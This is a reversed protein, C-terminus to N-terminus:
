KKVVKPSLFNTDLVMKKLINRLNGDGSQLESVYPALLVKLEEDNMERGNIFAFARKVSCNEFPKSKAVLGAFHAVGEGANNGMYTGRDIPPSYKKRDYLYAPEGDIGKWKEFYLSMNELGMHVHCLACYPNKVIDDPATPDPVIADGVAFRLCTFAEYVRNAKARTGNTLIQFAPTTLVGAHVPGREVRYQKRDTISPSVFIRNARDAGEPFNDWFESGVKAMFYGYTGTMITSTSTLVESFNRDEAVTHAILYGPEMSMDYGVQDHFKNYRHSGRMDCHMMDPGCRALVASPVKYEKIGQRAYKAVATVGEPDWWPKVSRLDPSNCGQNTGGRALDYIQKWLSETGAVVPKEKDVFPKITTVAGAAMYWEIVPFDPCAENMALMIHMQPKIARFKILSTLQSGVTSSTLQSQINWDIDSAMNKESYTKGSKLKLSYVDIPTQTGLTRVWFQAYHDIFEQSKSLREAIENFDIKGEIFSRRLDVPMPRGTLSIAIKEAQRIQLLEVEAFSPLAFLLALALSSLNKILM